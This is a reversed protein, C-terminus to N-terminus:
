KKISKVNKRSGLNMLSIFDMRHNNDKCLGCPLPHPIPFNNGKKHSPFLAANYKRAECVCEGGSTKGDISGYKSILIPMKRVRENM